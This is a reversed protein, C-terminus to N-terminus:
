QAPNPTRSEPNALVADGDFGSDRIGLGSDEEADPDVDEATIAAADPTTEGNREMQEVDALVGDLSMQVTDGCTQALHSLDGEAKARAIELEGAASRIADLLHRADRIVLDQADVKLRLASAMEDAARLTDRMADLARIDDDL